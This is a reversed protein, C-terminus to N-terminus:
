SRSSLFSSYYGGYHVREKLDNRNDTQRFAEDTMFGSAHLQAVTQPRCELVFRSAEEDSMKNQGYETVVKRLDDAYCFQLSPLIECGGADVDCYKPDDCAARGERTHECLKKWNSLMNEDARKLFWTCWVARHLPRDLVVSADHYESLIDNDHLPSGYNTTLRQHAAPIRLQVSVARKIHAVKLSDSKVKVAERKSHKFTVTVAFIGESSEVISHKDEDNDTTIQESSNEEYNGLLTKKLWEGIMSPETDKNSALRFLHARMVLSRKQWASQVCALNAERSSAVNINYNCEDSAEQEDQILMAAEFAAGATDKEGIMSLVRSFDGHWLALKNSSCVDFVQNLRHLIPQMKTAVHADRRGSAAPFYSRLPSPSTFDLSMQSAAWPFMAGNRVLEELLFVAEGKSAEAKKKLSASSVNMAVFRRELDTWGNFLINFTGKFNSEPGKSEGFGGRMTSDYDVDLESLIHLARHTLSLSEGLSDIRGPFPELLNIARCFQIHQLHEDFPILKGSGSVVLDAATLNAHYCRRLLQEILDQDISAQEFQAKVHDISIPKSSASETPVSEPSPSKPASIALAKAKRQLSSKRFFFPM